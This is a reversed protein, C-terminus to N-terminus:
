AVPHFIIMNKKFKENKELKLDCLKGTWADDDDGFAEILNELSINNVFINFEKEDVEVLAILKKGFTTEAEAFTNLTVQCEEFPIDLEEDADPNVKMTPYLKKAERKTM